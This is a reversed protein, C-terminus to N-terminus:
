MGIGDLFLVDTLGVYKDLWNISLDLNNGSDSLEMDIRQRDWHSRYYAEVMKSETKKVLLL